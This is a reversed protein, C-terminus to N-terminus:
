RGKSPTLFSSHEPYREYFRNGPKRMGEIKDPISTDRNNVLLYRPKSRAYHLHLNTPHEKFQQKESGRTANFNMLNNMDNTVSRYVKQNLRKFEAPIGGEKHYLSKHHKNFIDVNNLRFPYYFHKSGDLQGVENTAVNQLGFM